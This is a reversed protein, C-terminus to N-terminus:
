KTVGERWIRTSLSLPASDLDTKFLGQQHLRFVASLFAARDTQAVAQMLHGLTSDPQAHLKLAASQQMEGMPYDRTAAIFAVVRWWNAILTAHPKLDDATIVRRNAGIQRAAAQQAERQHITRSNKPNAAEAVAKVERAEPNGDRYWVLADFQAKHADGAVNVIIELPNLDFRVVEPSAELWLAHRLADDSSVIWDRATKPSYYLWLNSNHRGRHQYKQWLRSRARSKLTPSKTSPM